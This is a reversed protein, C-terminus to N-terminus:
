NGPEKGRTVLTLLPVVGRRRGVPDGLVHGLGDTPSRGRLASGVTGSSITM